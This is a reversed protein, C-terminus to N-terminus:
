FYLFCVLFFVNKQFSEDTFVEIAGVVKQDNDYIPLSKVMVPVRYGEKHKLFVHNLQTEGTQLTHHLPCGGFCLATGDQTVHRLINNFCHENMVEEAKYGTIRESGSNWFIIKRNIDVIYIGEFFFSLLDKFDNEM